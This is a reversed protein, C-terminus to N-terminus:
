EEKRCNYAKYRVLHYSGKPSEYSDAVKDSSGLDVYCCQRLYVFSNRAEM